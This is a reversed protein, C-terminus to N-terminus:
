GSLEPLTAEGWILTYSRSLTVLCTVLLTELTLPTAWYGPRPPQPLSQLLHSTPDQLRPHPHPPQQHCVSTEPCLRAGLPLHTLKLFFFTKHSIFTVGPGHTM